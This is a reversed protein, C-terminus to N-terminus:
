CGATRQRVPRKPNLFLGLGPAAVPDGPRLRGVGARRLPQSLGFGEIAQWFEYHSGPWGHTVILLHGGNGEGVIHLFHLDFDEVRATFQPFRNLDVMAARWDYAGAWHTASAACIARTAAM